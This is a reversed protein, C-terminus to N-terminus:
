SCMKESDSSQEVTDDEGEGGEGEDEAASADDDDEDAAEAFEEFFPLWFDTIPDLSIVRGTSIIKDLGVCNVTYCIFNKDGLDLPGNDGIVVVIFQLSDGVVITTGGFVSFHEINAFNVTQLPALQDEIGIPQEFFYSTFQAVVDTAYPLSVSGLQLSNGVYFAVYPIDSALTLSGISVTDGARFVGTADWPAPVNFGREIMETILGYDGIELPADFYPSGWITLNAGSLDLNGWADMNMAGADLMAGPAVVNGWSRVELLNYASVSAGSLDVGGWGKLHIDDADLLAGTVSALGDADIDIWNWSYLNAGDAFIDGPAGPEDWALLDIGYADLTNGHLDLYGGFVEFRIWDATLNSLLDTGFETTLSVDSFNGGAASFFVSSNAGHLNYVDVDMWGSDAQFYLAQANVTADVSTSSGHGFFAVEGNLARIEGGLTWAYSGADLAVASTGTQLSEVLGYVEIGNGSIVINKGARVDGVRVVGTSTGGEAKFVGAIDIHLDAIDIDGSSGPTFAFSGGGGCVGDSLCSFNLSGSPGASSIGGLSGAGAAVTGIRLALDGFPNTSVISTGPDAAILDDAV